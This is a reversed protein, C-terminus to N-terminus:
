QIKHIHLVNDMINTGSHYMSLVAGKRRLVFSSAVVLDLKGTKTTARTHMINFQIHSDITEYSKQINNLYDPVEHKLKLM